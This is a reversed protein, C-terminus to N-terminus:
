PKGVMAKELREAILPRECPWCLLEGDNERRCLGDFKKPLICPWKAGCKPCEHEHKPVKMNEISKEAM